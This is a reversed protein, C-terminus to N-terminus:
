YAPLLTVMSDSDRAELRPWAKEYEVASRALRSSDDDVDDDQASGVHDMNEAWLSPSGCLDDATM